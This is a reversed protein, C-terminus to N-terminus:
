APPDPPAPLEDGLLYAVAVACAHCCPTEARVAARRTEDADDISEMRGWAAFVQGDDLVGDFLISWLGDAVWWGAVSPLDLGDFLDPNFSRRLRATVSSQQATM